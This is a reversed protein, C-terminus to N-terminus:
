KGDAGPTQGSNDGPRRAWITVLIPYDPDHINLERASLEDAAVGELFAVATLVNGHATVRVQEAGFVEGFLAACSARTLRWYDLDQGATRHIRSVSPVTCLLVGGPKLIRHAHRIASKLDLILQLTQTLIFCDFSESAINEADALDSVVTANPNDSSIDLVHAETVASGFRRTYASDKVELVKGAIEQSHGALFNEIYYRDVPNGRDFGWHRSIPTVRRLTGFWAPQIIRRLRKVAPHRRLHNRTLQM